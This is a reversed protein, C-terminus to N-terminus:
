WKILQRPSNGAKEWLKMFKYSDAYSYPFAFARALSSSAFHFVMM